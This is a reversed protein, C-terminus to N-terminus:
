GDIGEPPQENEIEGDDNVAKHTAVFWFAFSLIVTIVAVTYALPKGHWLGDFWQRFETFLINVKGGYLELERLYKKTDMPDYGLPDPSPPQAFLYIAVSSSLGLLLLIVTVDNIRRRRIHNPIRKKSRPRQKDEGSERARKQKQIEKLEDDSVGHGRKRLEAAAAEIAELKYISSNALYEKLEQDSLTPIRTQFTEIM